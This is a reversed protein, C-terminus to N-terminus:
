VASQVEQHNLNLRSHILPDDFDMWGCQQCTLQIRQKLKVLLASNSLTEIDQAIVSLTGCKPCRDNMERVGM